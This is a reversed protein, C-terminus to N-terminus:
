SRRSRSIGHPTVRAFRSVFYVHFTFRSVYFLRGRSAPTLTSASNHKSTSKRTYSAASSYITETSICCSLFPVRGALAKKRSLRKEHTIEQKTDGNGHPEIFLLCPRGPRVPPFARFGGPSYGWEKSALMSTHVSHARGYTWLKELRSLSAGPTTPTGTGM